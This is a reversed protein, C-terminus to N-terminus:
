LLQCWSNDNYIQTRINYDNILINIEPEMNEWEMYEDEGIYNGTNENERIRFFTISTRNALEGLRTSIKVRRVPFKSTQQYYYTMEFTGNARYNYNANVIHNGNHTSIDPYDMM